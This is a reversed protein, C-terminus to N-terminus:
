AEAWGRMRGVADAFDEMYEQVVARASKASTVLGIGQGVGETLIDRAAENGGDVSKEALLLARNTLLHQFPMPLPGPSGPEEWAANWASKLQRATKGTMARSRITDRSRAALLKEKVAPHVESEATTLWVSGTWAGAAGMAMAAAMQRGTVIGGAALVPIDSGMEELWRVVEPVLVMTSVEGCHAAAETGQAVLVDVGAEIQRKAHDKSGILAGTPVGAAKCKDIMFQPPKGLANVFLRIPHQLGVDVMREATDLFHSVERDEDADTPTDLSIGHRALLEDAFRRHGEPIQAELAHTTMDPASRDAMNEPVAIDLGYPRGDCHADIWDLEIKLQDPTMKGNTAGFVGFGGARSVAAVVDRCHSFAVLPFDVGVLLTFRNQM